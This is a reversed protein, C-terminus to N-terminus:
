NRIHPWFRNCAFDVVAVGTKLNNFRATFTEDDLTTEFDKFTQHDFTVSIYDATKFRQMEDNTLYEAEDPGVINGIDKRLVLINESVGRTIRWSKIISISGDTTFSVILNNEEDAPDAPHVFPPFLVPGWSEERYLFIVIYGGVRKGEESTCVYNISMEDDDNNKLSHIQRPEGRGNIIMTWGEKLPVYKEESYKEEPYALYHTTLLNGCKFSLLSLALFLISKSIAKTWWFSLTSYEARLM